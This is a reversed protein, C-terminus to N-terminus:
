VMLRESYDRRLYRCCERIGMLLVSAAVVGFIICLGVGYCEDSGFHIIDCVIKKSGLKEFSIEVVYQNVLVATLSGSVILVVPMAILLAAAGLLLCIVRTYQYLLLLLLILNSGIWWIGAAIALLLLGKLLYHLPSGRDDLYLRWLIRIRKM